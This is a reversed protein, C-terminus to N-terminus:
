DLLGRLLSSGGGACLKGARTVDLVWGGGGAGASHQPGLPQAQRRVKLPGRMLIICDRCGHKVALLAM